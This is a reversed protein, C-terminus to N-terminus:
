PFSAFLNKATQNIKRQQEEADEGPMKYGDMTMVPAPAPTKIVTEAHHTVTQGNSKLVRIVRITTKM